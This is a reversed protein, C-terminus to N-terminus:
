PLLSIGSLRYTAKHVDVHVTEGQDLRVPATPTRVVSSPLAKKTTM